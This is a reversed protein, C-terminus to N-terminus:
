RAGAHQAARELEVGKPLGAQVQRIFSNAVGSLQKALESQPAAEVLLLVAAALEFPPYNNPPPRKIVSPEIMAPVQFCHRQGGITICFEFM